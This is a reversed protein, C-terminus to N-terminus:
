LGGPRRIVITVTGARTSPQDVGTTQTSPDRGSSGTQGGIMDAGSPNVDALAQQLTSGLLDSNIVVAGSLTAEVVKGETSGVLSAEITPSTVSSGVLASQAGQAAAAAAGFGPDISRANDFFNRAEDLRGADSAELGRSYAIFAQVSRTPRQEISRREAATLTIGLRDIVGFVIEKELDFLRELSNEANATGTAESTAVSVVSAAIQLRDSGTQTIAGQVVSGATLMRGSRVATAAEVRGSESLKMEDMLVQVRERELVTLAKVKAFDTIMLDVMGRELPRLSTDAGVFRLPMVAITTKPGITAGMGQERAVAAKAAAQLELREVAALRDQVMTRTKRTKGTALYRTYASRAAALDNTAEATMGLYLAALGDRPDLSTARTLAAAADAYRSLKYYAIGVRRQAEASSPAKDRRQEAVALARDSVQGQIPAAACLAVAMVMWSTTRRM